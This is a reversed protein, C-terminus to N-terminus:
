GAHKNARDLDNTGPAFIMAAGPYAIRALYQDQTELACMTDNYAMCRHGTSHIRHPHTQACEGFHEASLLLFNLNPPNDEDAKFAIPPFGSKITEYSAVTPTAM